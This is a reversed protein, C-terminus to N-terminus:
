NSRLIEWRLSCKRGAAFVCRRGAQASGQSRGGKRGRDVGALLFLGSLALHTFTTEYAAIRSSYTCDQSIDAILSEGTMVRNAGLGVPERCRPLARVARKLWRQARLVPPRKMKRMSSVSTSRLWAASERRLQMASMRQSPRSQSSPGSTPPGTPERDGPQARRIRGLAQVRLQLRLAQGIGAVARASSRSSDRLSCRM